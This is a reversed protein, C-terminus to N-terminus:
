GYIIVMHGIMLRKKIVEPHSNAIMGVPKSALMDVTDWWSKTTIM